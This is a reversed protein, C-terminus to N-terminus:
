SYLAKFDKYKDDDPLPVTAGHETRNGIKWLHGYANKRKGALFMYINVYTKMGLFEAAERAGYFSRIYNGQLDYMLLLRSQKNEKGFKGATWNRIRGAKRSYNINQKATCWELNSVNNNFKDEDKHNVCPLNDPNPIFAKAVLRHVTFTRGRDMNSLSVYLYGKSGKVQTMLHEKVTRLGHRGPCKHEVCKVRGLNSVQYLGEFGEIDKWIEDM